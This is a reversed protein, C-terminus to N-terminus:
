AEHQFAPSNGLGLYALEHKFDNAIDDAGNARGIWGNGDGHL